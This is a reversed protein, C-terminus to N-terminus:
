SKGIATSTEHLYGFVIKFHSCERSLIEGEIFRAILKSFSLAQPLNSLRLKEKTGRM